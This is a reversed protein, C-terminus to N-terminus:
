SICTCFDLDFLQLQALSIDACSSGTGSTARYAMCSLLVKSLWTTILVVYCFVVVRRFVCDSVSDLHATARLRICGFRSFLDQGILLSETIGDLKM